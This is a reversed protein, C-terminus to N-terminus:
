LRSLEVGSVARGLRDLKKNNGLRKRWLGVKECFLLVEDDLVIRTKRGSFSPQGEPINLILDYGHKRAYKRPDKDIVLVEPEFYIYHEMEITKMESEYQEHEYKSVFVRLDYGARACWRLTRHLDTLKGDAVVAMLIKM